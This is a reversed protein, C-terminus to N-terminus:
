GSTDSEKRGWPSYGILSRRGHSKGALTSSHIAMEKELTDEGGLFRVRTDRMAPLRKVTQAVLSAGTLLIRTWIINQDQSALMFATMDSPNKLNKHGQGSLVFCWNILLCVLNRAM